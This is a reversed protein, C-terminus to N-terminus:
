FLRDGVRFSYNGQSFAGALIRLNIQPQIDLNTLSAATIYNVQFKEVLWRNGDYLATLPIYRLQSDPPYIITEM